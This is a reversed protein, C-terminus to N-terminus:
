NISPGAMLMVFGVYGLRFINSGGAEHKCVAIGDVDGVAWIENMKVNYRCLDAM